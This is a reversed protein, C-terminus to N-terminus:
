SRGLYWWYISIFSLCISFLAFFKLLLSAKNRTGNAMLLIIPASADLIYRYGVQEAGTNHYFLLLGVTLLVSTWSGIIWWNKRLNFFMFFLAPTMFFISYGAVYPYFFYREGSFDFRPLRFLMIDLNTKFFHPHFMGYKTVAELIWDAGNITVYGFDLWNDFRLYNYYLLVFVSILVPVGAKICWILSKRLDLKLSYQNQNWLYIGLVCLFITFVNPRSLIALGLFSGVLFGSHNQIAAICALITFTVTLIQSVFWMQGTTSLWFHDTGFIFIITIWISVSLSAKLMKKLNAIQILLFTLGANVAGILASYITMNVAEATGKIWVYPMLLIAPLPPNPVFWHGNYFTLDHTTPPNTLYLKGQLFSEALLNWYAKQRTDVRGMWLETSRIISFGLIFFFLCGCITNIKEYRSPEKLSVQYIIGWIISIAITLFVMISNGDLQVAWFVNDYYTSLCYYVLLISSFLLSLKIGYRLSRCDTMYSLIIGEAQVSLLLLWILLPFARSVIVNILNGTTRIPSIAFLIMGVILATVTWATLFIIFAFPEKMFFSILQGRKKYLFFLSLLIFFCFVLLLIRSKSLNLFVANKAESSDIAILVIAIIGEILSAFFFIDPIRKKM